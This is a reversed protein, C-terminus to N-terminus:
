IIFDFAHYLRDHFVFIDKSSDGKCVPSITIQSQGILIGDLDMSLGDLCQCTCPPISTYGKGCDPTPFDLPCAQDQIAFM